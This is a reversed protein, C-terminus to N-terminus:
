AASTSPTAASTAAPTGAAASEAAKAADVEAQSAGEASVQPIQKGELLAFQTEWYKFLRDEVEKITGKTKLYKWLGGAIIACRQVDTRKKADLEAKEEVLVAEYNEEGIIPKIHSLYHVLMGQVFANIKEHPEKGSKKLSWAQQNLLPFAPHQLKKTEESQVVGEKTETTADKKKEKSAAKTAALANKFNTLQNDLQATLNANFSAPLGSVIAKLSALEAVITALDPQQHESM